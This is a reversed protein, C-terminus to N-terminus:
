KRKKGKKKKRHPKGIPNVKNIDVFKKYKISNINNRTINDIPKIEECEREKLLMEYNFNQIQEALVYEYSKKYFFAVLQQLVNQHKLWSKSMEEDSIGLACNKHEKNPIISAGLSPREEKTYYCGDERLMKCQSARSVLDVIGSNINRAKLYLVFFYISGGIIFDGSISINGKLLENKLYEFNMSKFDEPMYICGISKCCKGCGACISKDEYREVMFIMRGKFCTVM